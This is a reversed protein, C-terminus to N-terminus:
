DVHSMSLVSGCVRCSRPLEGDVILEVLQDVIDDSSRGSATLDISSGVSQRDRWVPATSV